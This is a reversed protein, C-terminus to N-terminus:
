LFGGFLCDKSSLFRFELPRVKNDAWPQDAEPPSGTQHIKLLFM